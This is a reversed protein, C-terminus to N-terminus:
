IKPWFALAGYTLPLAAIGLGLAIGLIWAVRRRQRRELSQRRREQRYENELFSGASGNGVNGIRIM